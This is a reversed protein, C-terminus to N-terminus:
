SQRKTAESNKLTMIDGYGNKKLAPVLLDVDADGHIESWGTYVPYRGIGVILARNEAQMIFISILAALCVIAVRM